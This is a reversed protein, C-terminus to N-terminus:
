RRYSANKIQISVKDVLIKGYNNDHVAQPSLKQIITPVIDRYKKYKHDSLIEIAFDRDILLVAKKMYQQEYKKQYLFAMAMNCLEGQNKMSDFNAPAKTGEILEYNRFWAEVYEPANDKTFVGHLYDTAHCISDFAIVDQLKKNEINVVLSDACLKGTLNPISNIFDAQEKPMDRLLDVRYKGDAFPMPDGIKVPTFQSSDICQIGKNSDNFSFLNKDSLGIMIEEDSAHKGDLNKSKNM